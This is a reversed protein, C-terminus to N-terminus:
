PSFLEIRILQQERHDGNPNSQQPDRQKGPELVLLKLQASLMWM